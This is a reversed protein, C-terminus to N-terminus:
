WLDRDLGLWPGSGAGGGRPATLAGMTGPRLNDYLHPKAAIGAFPYGSGIGKAFLMIDPDAGDFHQHGWWKGTRAVGSQVQVNGRFCSIPVQTLEPVSSRSQYVDVVVLSRTRVIAVICSWSVTLVTHGLVSWLISSVRFWSLVPDWAPVGHRLISSGDRAM